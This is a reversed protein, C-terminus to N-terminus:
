SPRAPGRGGLAMLMPLNKEYRAEEAAYWAEAMHDEPIKEHYEDSFDCAIPVPRMHRPEVQVVLMADADDDDEGPKFGRAKGKKKEKVPVNINYREPTGGPLGETRVIIGNLDFDPKSKHRVPCGVLVMNGGLPQTNAIFRRMAAVMAMEREPAAPIASIRALIRDHEAQTIYKFEVARKLFATLAPGTGEEETELKRHKSSPVPTCHEVSASILDKGFASLEKDTMNTMAALHERQANSLTNYFAKAPSVTASSPSALTAM